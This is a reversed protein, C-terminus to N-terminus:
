AQGSRSELDEWRATLRVVEAEAGELESRVAAMGAGSGQYLEPDALRGQFEGVRVEAAEIAGFLGDLELREAHTL